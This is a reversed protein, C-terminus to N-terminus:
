ENIRVFESVGNAGKRKTKRIEKMNDRSSVGSAARSPSRKLTASSGLPRRWCALRIARVPPMAIKMMESPQLSFPGFDLWRRSVLRRNLWWLMLSGGLIALIAAALKTAKM